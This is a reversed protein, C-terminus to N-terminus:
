KRTCNEAMRGLSGFGDEDNTQIIYATNPILIHLSGIGVEVNLNHNAMYMRSDADKPKLGPPRQITCPFSRDTPSFPTEWMQSFEDMLWPVETQNAKYDMFIMARKGSLIIHSLDPWDDLGMPIKPPTYALDLLGANKFPAIFNTAEVQNSNAVLFTVVDYPHQEMWGAVKTLYSELTGVNLIDCSTHCLYLTNNVMHVQFQVAHRTLWQSYYNIQLVYM